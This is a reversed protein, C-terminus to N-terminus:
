KTVLRKLTRGNEETVLYALYLPTETDLEINSVEHEKRCGKGVEAGHILGHATFCEEYGPFMVGLGELLGHLSEEDQRDRLTALHRGHHVFGPLVPKAAFQVPGAKKHAFSGSADPGLIRRRWTYSKCSGLPLVSLRTSSL